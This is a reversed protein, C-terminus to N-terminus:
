FLGASHMSRNQLTYSRVSPLTQVAVQASSKEEKKRDPREGRLDKKTKNREKERGKMQRLELLAEEERM